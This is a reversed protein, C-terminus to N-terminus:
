VWQNTPLLVGNAYTGGVKETGFPNFVYVAATAAGAVALCLVVAALLAKRSLGPRGPDTKRSRRGPALPLTSVWLRWNTIDAGARCHDRRRASPPTMDSEDGHSCVSNNLPRSRCTFRGSSPSRLDSSKGRVSSYTGAAKQGLVLCFDVLRVSRPLSLHTP